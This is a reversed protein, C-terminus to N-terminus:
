FCRRRMMKEYISFADSVLLNSDEGGTGHKIEVVSINM